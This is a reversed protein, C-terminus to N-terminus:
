LARWVYVHQAMSVKVMNHSLVLAPSVGRGRGHVQWRRGALSIARLVFTCEGPIPPQFSVRLQRTEGAAAHMATTVSTSRTVHAADIGVRATTRHIGTHFCM